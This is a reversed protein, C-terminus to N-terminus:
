TCRLLGCIWAWSLVILRRIATCLRLVTHLYTQVQARVLSVFPDRPNVICVHKHLQRQQQQQQQKSMCGMVLCGYQHGTELVIQLLAGM